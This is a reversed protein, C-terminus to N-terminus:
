FSFYDKWCGLGFTEYELSYSGFAVLNRMLRRACTSKWGFVLGNIQMLPSNSVSDSWIGLSRRGYRMTGM